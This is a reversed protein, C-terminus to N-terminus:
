RQPHATRCRQRVALRAAAAEGTHSVSAVLLLSDGGFGLSPSGSLPVDPFVRTARPAPVSLDVDLLEVGGNDFAELIGIVGCPRAIFHSGILGPLSESISTDRWTRGGDESRVSILSEGGSQELLWAVDVYGAAQGIWVGHTRQLPDGVEIKGIAQLPGGSDSRLVRIVNRARPNATDRGALAVMISRPGVAAVSAYTVRSAVRTSTWPACSGRIHVLDMGAHVPLIVHVCGQGDVALPVPQSSWTIRSGSLIRTPVSWKGDAYAAHWLEAPMPWSLSLEPDNGEGWVLHYVGASDFVGRPYWFRFNGAPMPLVYGDLRGLYPRAAESTSDPSLLTGAVFRQDRGIALSPYRLVLGEPMAPLAGLTTWVGVSTVEAPVDGQHRSASCGAAVWAAIAGALLVGPRPSLNSTPM